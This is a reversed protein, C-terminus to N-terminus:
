VREVTMLQVERNREDFNIPPSIIEFIRGGFNVRNKSTVELNYTSKDGGVQIWEVYTIADADDCFAFYVGTITNDKWDDGGIVLDHM